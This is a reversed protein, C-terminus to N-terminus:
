PFEEELERFVEEAPICQVKGEVIERWRRELEQEWWAESHEGPPHSLSSRIAAMLQARSAEPLALVQATLQEFDAPM